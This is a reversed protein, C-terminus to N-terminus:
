VTLDWMTVYKKNDSQVIGDSESGAIAQELLVSDTSQTVSITYGPLTM